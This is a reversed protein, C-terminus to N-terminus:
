ADKTAPGPAGQVLDKEDLDEDELLAATVTYV